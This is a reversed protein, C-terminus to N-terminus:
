ARRVTVAGHRPYCFKDNIHTGFKSCANPVLKVVSCLDKGNEVITDGMGLQPVPIVQTTM